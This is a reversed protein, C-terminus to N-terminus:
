DKPLQKDPVLQIIVFKPNLEIVKFPNNQINQDQARAILDKTLTDFNVSVYYDANMKLMKDISDEIIPWGKRGTQYLFATDGNYPAVVLAKKPAIRDLTQGAEVIEPHNINYYDRIQYWGFAEMFVIVVIITIINRTKSFTGTTNSLLFVVGKALFICIVPIIYIQYYDHRVNGTAIVSLYALMGFLYFYFINSENKLKVLIGLVLLVVGWYGLILKSIREAFLWQFFAGKFRINDGNLLWEFAPVGEPFHSIWYRWWLLPLLGIFLYVFLGIFFKKSFGYKKYWIYSAPLFMFVAIPKVLLALMLLILSLVLLFYHKFISVNDFLFRDLYYLFGLSLAVLLPEPLIARSYYINYPIIAFFLGSFFAGTKGIYRSVLKYLFILSLLSAFVSALRGSFEINWGVFIKDIFTAYANYLPFEVMRLGKPNDRGSPLSSLDQYTPYLFSIGNRIFDRTVSSTDSQRWSHWDALPMDLPHDKPISVRVIFAIFLLIILPFLSGKLFKKLFSQSRSTFEKWDPIRPKQTIKDLDRDIVKLGGFTIGAVAWFSYAVKSAEFVDIYVANVLLGVILGAFGVVFSFFVPDNIKTFTKWIVILMAVLIGYFAVFGLIGTEGLSRLFDNDTSEAETFEEVNVKTLTSYGSGVFINKEFGGIARPWLADLRIGTSLDYVLATQSYNRKTSVTGSGSASPIVLPIDKEVDVPRLPTPPQDSKSTVAAINNPNNELFIVSQNSPPQGFPNLVLSRVGSLREDLKLLKLFRDSLDGFSLMVFISLFTIAFFSILSFRIGKRFAWLFCIVFIGALYALFSTRSATLILLWFASAIVAFILIKYFRKKVGLFLSWLITLVMMTFAALDYHGGFTSLVRAHATLILLWGKSFERNMTSFAPWYLYKQGYGYLTVAVMVGILILLYTKVQKLSRISTYFIFFLSFYEIRRLFHLVMKGVHITELPVTQIIFVASVMSLLGVAIYIGMIDIVPNLSITIKKRILWIFWIIVTAGILFDELRIRVIYGPLVDLLPLKPYLPIFILLFGALLAILNDDLWSLLKQM